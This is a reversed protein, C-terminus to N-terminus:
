VYIGKTNGGDSIRENLWQDLLAGTMNFNETPNVPSFSGGDPFGIYQVEGRVLPRCDLDAIIMRVSDANAQAAFDDEGTLKKDGPLMYARDMDYFSLVRINSQGQALLSERVANAIFQEGVILIEPTASTEASATACATANVAAGSQGSERFAATNKASLDPWTDPVEQEEDWAQNEGNKAYFEANKYKNLEATLKEANKRGFPAGALFPIGFESEMFRALKLGAESVVVNVQAAAAKKLNETTEKTGWHSIVRWGADAIMEDVSAVTEATWDITNAGLLNVTGPITEQPTLLIRGLTELTTGIGYLYDKDGDIKVEAAPLGSQKTIKEAAYELDSNIMSASPACCLLVFNPVYQEMGREFTQMVKNETGTIIDENRIDSNMVRVSRMAAARDFGGPGHTEREARTAFPRGGDPGLGHGEPRGGRGGRGGQPNGGQGMRIPKYRSPDDIIGFGETENLVAEFGLVDSLCPPIVKWLRKM